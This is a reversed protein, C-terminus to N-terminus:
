RDADDDIGCLPSTQGDTRLSVAARALPAPRGPSYRPALSLRCCPGGPVEGVTAGGDEHGVPLQPAFWYKSSSDAVDHRSFHCFLCEACRGYCRSSTFFRVIILAYSVM